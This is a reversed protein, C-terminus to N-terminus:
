RRRITFRASESGIPLMAVKSRKGSGLLYDAVVVILFLWLAYTVFSIISVLQLFLFFFTAHAIWARAQQAVLRDIWHDLAATFFFFLPVILILSQYPFNWIAEAWFGVGWSTYLDNEAVLGVDRPLTFGTTQNFSPKDPWILRPVLQKIADVYGEGDRSIIQGNDLGAQVYAMERAGNIRGSIFEEIISNRDELDMHLTSYVFVEPDELFDDPNFRKLQQFPLVLYLIAVGLVPFLVLGMRSRLMAGVGISGLFMILQSRWLSFVSFYGALGLITVTSATSLMSTPRYAAVTIVVVPYFFTGLVPFITGVGSLSFPFLSMTYGVIALVGFVTVTGVDIDEPRMLVRPKSKRYALYELCVALAYGILLCTFPFVLSGILTEFPVREPRLETLTYSFPGVGMFLLLSGHLGSTGSMLANRRHARYLSFSALLIVGVSLFRVVQLQEELM